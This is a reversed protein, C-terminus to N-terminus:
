TPTAAPSASPLISPTVTASDLTLANPVGFRRCGRHFCERLDVSFDDTSGREGAAAGRYTRFAGRLDSRFVADVRRRCQTSSQCRHPPPFKRGRGSHNCAKARFSRFEGGCVCPVEGLPSNGRARVHYLVIAIFLTGWVRIKVKLAAM